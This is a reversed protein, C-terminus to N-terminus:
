VRMCIGTADKPLPLNLAEGPCRGFTLTLTRSTDDVALDLDEMSRPNPKLEWTTMITMHLSSDPCRPCWRAYLKYKRLIRHMYVISTSDTQTMELCFGCYVMVYHHIIIYHLGGVGSLVQAMDHDRLFVDM